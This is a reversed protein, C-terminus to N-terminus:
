CPIVSETKVKMVAKWGLNNGAVQECIFVAVLGFPLPYHIQCTRESIKYILKWTTRSDTLSVLRGNLLDGTWGFDRLRRGM